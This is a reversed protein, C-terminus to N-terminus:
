VELTENAPKLILLRESRLIGAVTDIERRDESKVTVKVEVGNISGELVAKYETVRIDNKLKERKDRKITKLSVRLVEDSM